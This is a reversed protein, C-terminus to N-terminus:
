PLRMIQPKDGSTSGDAMQMNMLHDILINDESRIRARSLVHTFVAMPQIAIERSLGAAAAAMHETQYGNFWNPLWDCRVQFNSIVIAQITALLINFVLKSIVCSAHRRGAWSDRCAGFCFWCECFM